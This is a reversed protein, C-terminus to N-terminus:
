IHQDIIREVKYGEKIFEQAHKGCLHIPENEGHSHTLYSASSHCGTAECQAVLENNDQLQKLLSDAHAVAQGTISERDNRSLNPNALIGQMAMGALLVRTDPDNM